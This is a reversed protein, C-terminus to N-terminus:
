RDLMEKARKASLAEIKEAHHISESGGNVYLFYKNSETVYITEEYGTPDGFEGFTKKKVVTAADTDYVVNRLVKKM